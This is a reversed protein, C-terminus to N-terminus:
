TSSSGGPVCSSISSSCRRSAVSGPSAASRALTALVITSPLGEPSRGLPLFHGSLWLTIYLEPLLLPAAVLAGAFLLLVFKAQRRSRSM